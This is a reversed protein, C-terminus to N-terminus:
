YGYKKEKFRSGVLRIATINLIKLDDTNCTTTKSNYVTSDMLEGSYVKKYDKM